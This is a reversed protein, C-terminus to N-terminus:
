FHSVLVNWLDVSREGEPPLHQSVMTSPLFTALTESFGEGTHYSLIDRVAWLLHNHIHMVDTVDTM